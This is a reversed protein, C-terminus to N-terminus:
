RLSDTRRSTGGGSCTGSGSGLCCIATIAARFYAGFEAGVRGYGCIVVHDSLHRADHQIEEILQHRNRNYSVRYLHKALYGNYRIFFPALVMSCLIVLLLVQGAQHEIIQTGLALAILAFGFEGGQALTVGCRLAVGGKAGNFRALFTILLGKLLVFLLTLAIIWYWIEAIVPLDVLMGITIFFFGLLVDQFPRIDTEVQHRYETEGLMMGALFGGLALSLGAADTAWAAALSILLVTLTFLEASRARAVEAFLPRLLWHGIALLLLFIGIAKLLAWGLAITISDDSQGALVPIVVLLPIVALDQFLLIGISTRGHRSHLELQEALQKIVIATSSLALIGGIIASSLLSQGMLWAISAFLLTSLLMQALGLGFVTRRMAVMKAFSFELGITFLLFVVGFEAIFHTSDTSQILGFGYPGIAIGVLLYALIPPLHIRRFLAVTVVSFALLMIIESLFSHDM